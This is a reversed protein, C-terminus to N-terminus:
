FVIESEDELPTGNILALSEKGAPVDHSTLSGFDLGTLKELDSIKVQYLRVEADTLVQLEKKAAHYHPIKVVLEDQSVVFAKAHLENGVRYAIVKFFLRPIRVGGFTGDKVRKGKLNLRPQNDTGKTSSPADFVPGNIVCIKAGQSLKSIASEELRFWLGSAVNNQNFQWHQPCCNTFHFSDDGNRKAENETDGWQLDRRRTLHGRDFPSNTRDAEFQKQQGYYDQGIQLSQDIRTDLFWKDGDADRKGLFKGSDVNAASFYAFRRVSNMVVSYNWYKLESSAGKVNLPKGFKSGSAKPLPVILNGGLFKPNYGNRKNYNNQNIEVKEMQRITITTPPAPPTGAQTTVSKGLGALNVGIDIPVLIRTIGRSDTRVLVKDTGFDEASSGGTSPPEGASIVAIALPHQAQQKQLYDVIRSIRIGENAVWDIQDDGMDPKWPQGNKAIYVQRGGISRTKPVSSHHLAVVEWSNNFVPSGSSGGATDTQYWLYPGEESYKLLKNERVCIQKREGGPHQIITLYEGIFAKGPQPNLRLWGFTDLPVGSNSSHAVTTIAIDLDRFIIPEPSTLLGFEVPDVDNGNIDREYRFQASSFQVLQTNELVHQNTMLVGPAILFGTGYGLLTNNQRIAIRCVSRSCLVGLALYNIDTLENGQMIRELRKTAALPDRVQRLLTETRQNIQRKTADRRAEMGALKKIAGVVNENRARDLSERYRQIINSM